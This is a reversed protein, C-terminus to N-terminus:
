TPTNIEETSVIEVLENIKNIAQVIASADSLSFVGAKSAAELAQVLIQIAQTKDM